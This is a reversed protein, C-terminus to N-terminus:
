SSHMAQPSMWGFILAWLAEEPQREGRKIRLDEQHLAQLFAVLEQLTLRQVLARRKAVLWPFDGTKKAIFDNQAGEDALSKTKILGRVQRALVYFLKSPEEGGEIVDQIKALANPNREMLADLSSFLDGEKDHFLLGRLVDEDLEDGSYFLALKEVESGIRSMDSKVNELMYRFAPQSVRLNKDKLIKALMTPFDKKTPAGFDEVQGLKAIAKYFKSRKDLKEGELVIFIDDGTASEIYPLLIQADNLKEIRKLHLLVGADFLSPSQLAEVFRQPSFSDGDLITETLSGKQALEEKLKEVAQDRFWPEGTYLYLKM